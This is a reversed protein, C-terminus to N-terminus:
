CIESHGASSRDHPICKLAVASVSERRKAYAVTVNGGAMQAAKGKESPAYGPAIRSCFPIQFDGTLSM